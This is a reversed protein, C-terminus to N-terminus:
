RCPALGASPASRAPASSSRATPWRSSGGNPSPSQPLRERHGQQEGPASPGPWVLLRADQGPEQRRHGPEAVGLHVLRPHDPGELAQGLDQDADRVVSRVRRPRLGADGEPLLHAPAGLLERGVQPQAAIRDVNDPGPYHDDEWAQGQIDNPSVCSVFAPRTPDTKKVLDIVDALRDAPRTRTASAGPWCAPGTRTGRWTEAARQLLYPAYAPDKVQDGIWCYPVEDLIYMGKEECLELFRAAHNYHTTRIANINAAKMLTLDKSWQRDTLAFGKDAWFDHRCIGTCKIPKGNWLVINNKIEIQRFGFRQEVREVPKGGSTLQFVVYYLNPKEASWLKPAKM